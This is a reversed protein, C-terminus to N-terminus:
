VKKYLYFNLYTLCFVDFLFLGVTNWTFCSVTLAVPWYSVAGWFSSMCKICSWLPKFVWHDSGDFRWAILLYLINGHPKGKEDLYGKFSIHVGNIFVAQLLLFLSFQFIFDLQPSM